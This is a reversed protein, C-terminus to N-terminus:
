IQNFYDKLVATNDAPPTRVEIVKPRATATEEAWALASILSERNEVHKYNLGFSSAIGEMKFPHRMEFLSLHAATSSPGPIIDFIGGGSNNIVICTLNGSAITNFFANSDYLFSIDGTILYNPDKSELSHGIATSSSGDIGSTGRNCFFLQGNDWNFLQAYRIPSSNAVHVTCDSPLKKNLIQFVKFDSWHETQYSQHNAKKVVNLREWKSFYLGGKEVAHEALAKLASNADGMLHHTLQQYTDPATEFSSLHVHAKLPSKRLFAKIKKSVIPGGLTILTDPMLEKLEAEGISNIIRDITTVFSTEHLNSLTETLVVSNTQKQLTCLAEKLTVDHAPLSGILIMRREGSSWIEQLQRLQDKNWSTTPSIQHTITPSSTGKPVQNYLPEEFPYNIHVPGKNLASSHIARQIERTNHWRANKSDAEQLLQVSMLVHKDLAGNQRITQGDLQDIWEIPRDASLVILPIHQYFAEAVAPYYNLVASGSTCIVVAPKQTAQAIGLAIFGASREDPVPHCTFFPDEYFSLSLAGNRSGPSVVITSIHHAKFVAILDQVGPKNSIM